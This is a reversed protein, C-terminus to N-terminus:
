TLLELDAEDVQVSAGQQLFRVAVLLRTEGRRQLILGEQGLLPGSRVRVRMGPALKTEPLISGGSVILRRLQRLDETLQQGNSVVIDRSICNTTLARYRSEADGHLFVYNAFLPIQTKTIRGKPTRGRKEIMPGYFAIDFARLRRM